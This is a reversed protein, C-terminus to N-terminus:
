FDVRYGISQINIYGINSFDTLRVDSETIIYTGMFMVSYVCLSLFGCECVATFRSVPVYTYILTRLGLLSVSLFYSPFIIIALSSSFITEDLSGSLSPKSAKANCSDSTWGRTICHFTKCTSEISVFYLM